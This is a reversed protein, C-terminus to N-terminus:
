KIQQIITNSICDLPMFEPPNKGLKKDEKWKEFGEIVSNQESISKKKSLLEEERFENNCESCKFIDILTTNMFIFFGSIIKEKRSSVKTIKLCFPCNFDTSTKKLEVRKEVPLSEIYDFDMKKKLESLSHDRFEPTTSMAYSIGTRDDKLRLIINATSM